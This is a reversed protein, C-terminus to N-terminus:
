VSKWQAKSFPCLTIELQEPDISVSEQIAKKVDEEERRQRQLAAVSAEQQSLQVALDMM